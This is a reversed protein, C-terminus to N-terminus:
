KVTLTGTMNPHVICFFTYTGPPLAPVTYNVTQGPQVLPQGSYLPDGGNPNKIAFNHPTGPPSSNTFAIVFPQNAPATLNTQDFALANSAGLKIVTAGSPPQSPTNQAAEQAQKVWATYEDPTVARVTFRMDAHGIGCLEACQGTYTGPNTITIDFQNTIGPIVDRKFFFAPVYFSHIVDAAHLRIHVVTNVPLVMEPGDKGQGTFSLGSDKYEFTWQWQFGTVDVTVGPNASRADVKTQTNASLVFLVVVIIFPVITWGLEFFLNGHTQVPLGDDGKRRRYRIVAFIILGEVLLFIVTAIALVFYYLDNALQGTETVAKIPLLQPVPDSYSAQACGTAVLVLALLPLLLRLPARTGRLM